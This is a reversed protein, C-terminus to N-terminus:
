KIIYVGVILFMMIKYDYFSRNKILSISLNVLEPAIFEQSLLRLKGALSDGDAIDKPSIFPNVKVLFLM